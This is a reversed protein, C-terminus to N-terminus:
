LRRTTPLSCAPMLRESKQCCQVNIETMSDVRSFRNPVLKAGGTSRSIANVTVSTARGVASQARSSLGRDGGDARPVARRARKSQHVNRHVHRRNRGCETKTVQTFAPMKVHWAVTPARGNNRAPKGPVTQRVQVKSLALALPYFSKVAVCLTNKIELRNSIQPVACSSGGLKERIFCM